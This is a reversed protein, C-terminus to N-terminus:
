LFSKLFTWLPGTSTTTPVLLQYSCPSRSTITFVFAWSINSLTRELCPLWPWCPLIHSSILQHQPSLSLPFHLTHLFCAALVACGNWVMQLARVVSCPLLIQQNEHFGAASANLRLLMTSNLLIQMLWKFLGIEFSGSTPSFCFSACSDFSSSSSTSDICLPPWLYLSCVTHSSIAISYICVIHLWAPSCLTWTQMDQLSTHMLCM